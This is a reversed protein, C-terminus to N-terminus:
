SVVRTAYLFKSPLALLKAFVDAHGRTGADGRGDKGRRRRRLSTAPLLHCNRQHTRNSKNININLFCCPDCLSVQKSARTVECVCGRTGADGRGRTRRKRTARRARQRTASAPHLRSM